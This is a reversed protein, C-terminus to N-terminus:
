SSKADRSIIKLKKDFGAALRKRSLVSILVPLCAVSAVVMALKPDTPNLLFGLCFTSAAQIFLLAAPSPLVPSLAWSGFMTIFGVVPGLVGITLGQLFFIPAFLALRGQLRFMQTLVALTWAAALYVTVKTSLAGAGAQEEAMWVVIWAGVMARFFDVWNRKKLAEEVPKVTQDYPDREEKVQNHKRPANPTARKGHRLWSRPFWLLLLSFGILLYSTTSM